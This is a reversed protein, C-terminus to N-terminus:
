CLNKKEDLNIRPGLGLIAFSICTEFDALAPEDLLRELRAALAAERAHFARLDFALRRAYPPALPDLSPFNLRCHEPHVAGDVPDILPVGQLRCVAPRHDYALCAGQPGLLPCPVPGLAEFARDVEAEPLADLRGSARAGPTVALLRDALHRARAEIAARERAPLGALGARLLTADLAGVDFLGLCCQICGRGCRLQDRFRDLCRGFWRDVGRLLARYDRAVAALGDTRALPPPPPM